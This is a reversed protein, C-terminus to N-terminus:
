TQPQALINLETQFNYSRHQPALANNSTAKSLFHPWLPWTSTICGENAVDIGSSQCNSNSQATALGATTLLAAAVAAMRQFPLKNLLFLYPFQFLLRKLYLISSFSPSFSECFAFSQQSAPVQSYISKKQSSEV